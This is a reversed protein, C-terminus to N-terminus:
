RQIVRFGATGLDSARASPSDVNGLNKRPAEAHGQFEKTWSGDKVHPCRESSAFRARGVRARTAGKGGGGRSFAIRSALDQGTKDIAKRVREKSRGFFSCRM